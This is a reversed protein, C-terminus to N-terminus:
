QASTPLSRRGLGTRGKPEPHSAAERRDPRPSRVPGAYPQDACRISV